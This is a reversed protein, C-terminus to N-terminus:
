SRPFLDNSPKKGFYIRFSQSLSTSISHFLCFLDLISVFPCFHPHLPMRRTSCPVYLSFVMTYSAAPDSQAVRSIPHSISIGITRKCRNVDRKELKKKNKQSPLCYLSFWGNNHTLNEDSKEWRTKRYSTIPGIM